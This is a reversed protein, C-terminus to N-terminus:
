ASVPSAGWASQWSSRACTCQTHQRVLVWGLMIIKRAPNIGMEKYVEFVAGRIAYTEDELFLESM